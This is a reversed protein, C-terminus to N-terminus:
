LSRGDGLAPTRRAAFQRVKGVADIVQSSQAQTLIEALPMIGDAFKPLQERAHLVEAHWNPRLLLQKVNNCLKDLKDTDTQHSEAEILPEYLQRIEASQEPPVVLADALKLAELYEVAAEPVHGLQQQIQAM